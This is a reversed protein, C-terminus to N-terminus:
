IHRKFLGLVNGWEEPIVNTNDENKEQRHSLVAGVILERSVPVLQSRKEDKGTPTLPRNKELDEKM